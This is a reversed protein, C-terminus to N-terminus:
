FPTNADRPPGVINEVRLNYRTIVPKNDPGLVPTGKRKGELYDQSTLPHTAIDAESRATAMIKKGKLLASLEPYVHDAFANFSPFNQNPLKVGAMLLNSRTQPWTGQTYFFQIRGKTELVNVIAGNQTPDPVTEPYVIEVEATHFANGKASVAKTVDHVIFTYTGPPVKGRVELVQAVPNFPGSDGPDVETPGVPGTPTFGGPAPISPVQPMTPMGPIQPTM